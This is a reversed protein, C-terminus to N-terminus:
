LEYGLTVLIVEELQAIKKLSLQGLRKILRTKDLVRLQFCLAISDELLGGDGQNIM